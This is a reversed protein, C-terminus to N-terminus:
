KLCIYATPVQVQRGRVDGRSMATVSVVIRDPDHIRQGDGVVVREQVSGSRQSGDLNGNWIFIARRWIAEASVSIEVDGRVVRLASTEAFWSSNGM